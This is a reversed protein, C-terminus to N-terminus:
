RSLLTPLATHSVLSRTVGGLVVERLRSSAYAGAVLLDAKARAAFDHLIDVSHAGDRELRALHVVFDHRTLHDRVETGADRSDDQDVIVVDIRAGPEAVVVLDYLARTSEPSPKWALVAHHVEGLAHGSPVLITPTGSGILATEIVRRRLWPSQWAEKAPVLVVDAVQRSRRLDGALWAVDDALGIVRTAVGQGAIARDVADSREKLAVAVEHEPLYMGGVPLMADALYPNASLVAVEVAASKRRAFDVLGALFPAAAEANDVVALIDRLAM